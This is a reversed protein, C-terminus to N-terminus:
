QPNKEYNSFTLAGLFVLFPYISMAYRPGIGPTLSGWIGKQLIFYMTIWLCLCIPAFNERVSGRICKFVYWLFGIFIILSLSWVFAMYVMELAPIDAFQLDNLPVDITDVDVGLGKLYLHFYWRGPNFFLQALSPPFNQIIIWGNLFILHVTELLSDNPAAGMAVVDLNDSFMRNVTSTVSTYVLKSAVIYNRATWGIIAVLVSIATVTIPKIYCLFQEEMDERRSYFFFVRFAVLMILLWAWFFVLDPRTLAAAAMCLGACAMHGTKRTEAATVLFLFGSFVLVAFQFDAHIVMVYHIWSLTLSLASVFCIASRGGFRREIWRAVFFLWVHFLILQVAGWLRYQDDNKLSVLMALFVPYGPLRYTDYSFKSNQEIVGYKGLESLALARIEYEGGDGYLFLNPSDTTLVGFLFAKVIFLALIVVQYIKIKTNM